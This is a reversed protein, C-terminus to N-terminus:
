SLDDIGARTVSFMVAPYPRLTMMELMESEAHTPVMVVIMPGLPAPLDVKALVSTPIRRVCVPLMLTLSLSM